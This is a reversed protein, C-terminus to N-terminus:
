LKINQPMIIGGHDTHQLIQRPKIGGCDRQIVLGHHTQKSGRLRQPDGRLIDAATRHTGQSDRLKPRLKDDLHKQIRLWFMKRVQDPDGTQAM